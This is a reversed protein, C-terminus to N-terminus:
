RRKYNSNSHGSNGRRRVFRRHPKAAQSARARECVILNDHGDAEAAGAQGRFPRETEHVAAIIDDSVDDDVEIHASHDRIMGSGSFHGLDVGSRESLFQALSALDSLGDKRGLTVYLRTIGEGAHDASEHEHVNHNEDEPEPLRENGKPIEELAEEQERSRPEPRKRADREPYSKKPAHSRSERPSNNEASAKQSALFYNRLLLGLAPAADKQELMKEALGEFQGLEVQAAEKNINAVIRASINSLVEDELPLPKETFEILCQAKIPALVGFERSSLLNVIIRPESTSQKNFQCIQEYLQPRDPMDYNLMFPLASLDQGSLLKNQCIILDYEGRGMAQLLEGLMHRNQEWSTHAIKFGYRSLFRSLFDCESAENCSILANKPQHLALAALLARPKPETESTQHIIHKAAEMQKPRDEQTSHTVNNHIEEDGFDSLNNNEEGFM